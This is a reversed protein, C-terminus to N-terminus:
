GKRAGVTVADAAERLGELADRVEDPSGAITAYRDYPDDLYVVVREMLDCAAHAREVLVSVAQREVDTM